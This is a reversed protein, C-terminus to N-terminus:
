LARLARLINDYSPEEWRQGGKERVWRRSQRRSVVRSEKGKGLRWSYADDDDGGDGSGDSNNEDDQIDLIKGVTIAARLYVSDGGINELRELAKQKSLATVQIIPVADEPIPEGLHRRLKSM